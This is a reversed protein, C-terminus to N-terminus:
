VHFRRAVHAEFSEDRQAAIEIKLVRGRRFFGAGGGAGPDKISYYYKVHRILRITFGLGAKPPATFRIIYDKFAHGASNDKNDTEQWNARAPAGIPFEPVSQCGVTGDDIIPIAEVKYEAELEAPYQAVLKWYPNHFGYEDLIEFERLGSGPEVQVQLVQTGSEVRMFARGNSPNFTPTALQTGM